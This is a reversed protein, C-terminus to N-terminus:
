RDAVWIRNSGGYSYVLQQNVYTTYKTSPSCPLLTPPWSDDAAEETCFMEGNNGCSAVVSGVKLPCTFGNVSGTIRMAMAMDHHVEDGPGYTTAGYGISPDGDDLYSGYGGTAIPLSSGVTEMVGKTLNWREECSTSGAAICAAAGGSYMDGQFVVTRYNSTDGSGLSRHGLAVGNYTSQDFSQHCSGVQRYGDFPRDSAPCAGADVGDLWTGDSRECHYSVYSVQIPGPDSGPDLSSKCGVFADDEVWNATCSSYNGVKPQEVDDNRTGGDAFNEYCYGNDVVAGSQDHCTVIPYSVASSSCGAFVGPNWPDEFQTWGTVETDYQCGARTGDYVNAPAPGANDLCYSIPVPTIKMGDGGDDGGFQALRMRVDASSPDYVAGQLVVPGDPTSMGWSAQLTEARGQDRPTVAGIVPGSDEPSLRQCGVSRTLHSQQGCVSAGSWPGTTWQYTGFGDGPDDPDTVSGPDFTAGPTSTPTSAGPAPTPTPSPTPTSTPTSGTGKALDLPRRMLVSDSATPAPTPTPVDALAPSALVLGAALVATSVGWVNRSLSKGIMRFVGGAIQTLFPGTRCRVRDMSLPVKLIVRMAVPAPLVMGRAAAAAM